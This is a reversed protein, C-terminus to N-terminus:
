PTPCPKAHRSTIRARRNADTVSLLFRLQKAQVSAPRTSGLSSFSFADSPLFSVAQSGRRVQPQRAPWSPWAHASALSTRSAPPGPSSRGHLLMCSPPKRRVRYPLPPAATERTGRAHAPPSGAATSTIPRLALLPPLLGPLGAHEAPQKSYPSQRKPVYTHLPFMRIYRQLAPCTTAAPKPKSTVHSSRDWVVVAWPTRM